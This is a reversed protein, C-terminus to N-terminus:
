ELTFALLCPPQECWHKRALGTAIFQRDLGQEILTAPFLPDDLCWLRDKTLFELWETVIQQAIAAVPFFTTVQPKSNKTKV